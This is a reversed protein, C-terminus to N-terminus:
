IRHRLHSGCVAVCRPAPAPPPVVVVLWCMYRSGPSLPAVRDPQHSIVPSYYHFAAATEGSVQMSLNCSRYLPLWDDGRLPDWHQFASRRIGNTLLSSASKSKLTMATSVVRKLCWPPLREPVAECVTITHTRAGPCLRVNYTLASLSHRAKSQWCSNSYYSIVALHGTCVFMKRSQQSKIGERGRLGWCSFHQWQRTEANRPSPM